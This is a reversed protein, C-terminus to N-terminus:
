RANRRTADAALERWEKLSAKALELQAALKPAPGCAGKLRGLLNVAKEAYTLGQEWYRMKRCPTNLRWTYPTSCIVEEAADWTLMGVDLMTQVLKQTLWPPTEQLDSPVDAPKVVPKQAAPKKPAPKAKVPKAAKYGFVHKDLWKHTEKSILPCTATNFNREDSFWRDLEAPALEFWSNHKFTKGSSYKKHVHRHYKFLAASEELFKTFCRTRAEGVRSLMNVIEHRIGLHYARQHGNAKKYADLSKFKQRINLATLFEVAEQFRKLYFSCDYSKKVKRNKGNPTGNSTSEATRKTLVTPSNSGAERLNEPGISDFM